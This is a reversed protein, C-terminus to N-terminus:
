YKSIKAEVPVPPTGLEANAEKTPIGTPTLLESTPKLIEMIAAPILCQLNILLFFFFFSLIANNAFDLNLLMSTKFELAKIM